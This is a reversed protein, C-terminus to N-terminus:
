KAIAFAGEGRPTRIREGKLRRLAEKCSFTVQPPVDESVMLRALPIPKPAVATSITPPAMGTRLARISALTQAGTFQHVGPPVENHQPALERASQLAIGTDRNNERLLSEIERVRYEDPKSKIQEATLLKELRARRMALQRETTFHEMTGQQLKIQNIHALNDVPPLTKEVLSLLARSSPDKKGTLDSKMGALLRHLDLNTAVDSQDLGLKTLARIKAERAKSGDVAYVSSTKSDLPLNLVKQMSEILAIEAEAQTGFNAKRVKSALEQYKEAAVALKAQEKALMKQRAENAGAKGVIFTRDSALATSLADQYALAREPNEAIIQDVKSFDLHTIADRVDIRIKDDPQPVFALTPNEVIAKAMPGHTGAGAEKVYTAAAPKLFSKFMKYNKGVRIERHELANLLAVARSPDERVVSTIVPLDGKPLADDLIQTEDGHALATPLDIKAAATLPIRAQAKQQELIVQGKNYKVAVKHTDKIMTALKIKESKDQLPTSSLSRVLDSLSETASDISRPLKKYQSIYRERLVQDVAPALSPDKALSLAIVSDAMKMQFADSVLKRAEALRSRNASALSHEFSTEATQRADKFANDNALELGPEIVKQFTELPLDTQTLATDALRRENAALARTEKAVHQETRAAAAAKQKALDAVNRAEVEDGTPAEGAMLQLKRVAPSNLVSFRSEPKAQDNTVLSEAKQLGNKLNADALRTAQSRLALFEDSTSSGSLGERPLGDIQRRFNEVIRRHNAAVESSIQDFGKLAASMRLTDDSNIALDLRAQAQAVRELDRQNLKHYISRSLDQWGYQQLAKFAADPLLHKQEILQTLEVQEERLTALKFELDARTERFLKEKKPDTNIKTELRSIALRYAAIVAVTSGLAALVSTAWDDDKEKAQM